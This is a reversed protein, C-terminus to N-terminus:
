HSGGQKDCRLRILNKYLSFHKQLLYRDPIEILNWSWWQQTMTRKKGILSAKM